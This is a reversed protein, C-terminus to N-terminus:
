RTEVDSVTRQVYTGHLTSDTRPETHPHRPHGRPPGPPGRSGGDARSRDAARAGPGSVGGDSAVGAVM